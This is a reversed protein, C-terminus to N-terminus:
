EADCRCIFSFLWRYMQRDEVGSLSQGYRFMVHRVRMMRWSGFVSNVHYLTCSTTPEFEMLPDKYGYKEDVCKVTGVNLEDYRPM